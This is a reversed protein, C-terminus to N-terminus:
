LKKFIKNIYKKEVIKIIKINVKDSILSRSEKLKDKVAIEEPPKRGLLLKDSIILLLKCVNTKDIARSNGINLKKKNNSTNVFFNENFTLWSSIWKNVKIM